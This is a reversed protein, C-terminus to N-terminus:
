KSIFFYAITISVGVIGGVLLIAMLFDFLNVHAAEEKKDISSSTRKKSEERKFVPVGVSTSMLNVSNLVLAKFLSGQCEIKILTYDDGFEPVFEKSIIRGILPSINEGQGDFASSSKKMMEAKSKDDSFRLVTFYIKEGVDFTSITKGSIPDVIPYAESLNKLDDRKLISLAGDTDAIKSLQKSLDSYSMEEFGSTVKLSKVWEAFFDEIFSNLVDIDGNKISFILKEKFTKDSRYKKDIHKELDANLEKFEPSKQFIKTRIEPIKKQFIRLDDKIEIDVIASLSLPYQVVDYKFDEDKTILFYGAYGELTIKSQGKFKFVSIDSM